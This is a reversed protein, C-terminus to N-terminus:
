IARGQSSYDIAITPLGDETVSMGFFDLRPIITSTPLGYRDLEEQLSPWTKFVESRSERSGFAFTIGNMQIIWYSLDDPSSPDHKGGASEWTEYLLKLPKGSKFLLMIKEQKKRGCYRYFEHIYIRDM